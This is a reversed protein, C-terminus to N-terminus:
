AQKMVEVHQIGKSKFEKGHKIVLDVKLLAQIDELPNGEVAILDAMMGPALVGFRNEEGLIAAGTATAARLAAAPSMGSEIMLDLERVYCDLPPVRYMDTGVAIPVGAALAKQFSRKHESVWTHFAESEEPRLPNEWQELSASYALLTPVYFVGKKAMTEVLTEDLVTGHEIASFGAEVVTQAPALGEVHGSVPLGLAGAEEVAAKIEEPALFWDTRRWGSDRSDVSVVLKIWRAGSRKLERVAHRMAWPGQIFYNRWSQPAASGTPNPGTPYVTPGPISGEDIVQKMRFIGNHKCGPDRVTTIGMSLAEHAVRVGEIAGLVILEPTVEHETVSIIHRHADVLGPLIVRGKVDIGHAEPALQILQALPSVADIKNGQVLVACNKELRDGLGTFVPGGYIITKM